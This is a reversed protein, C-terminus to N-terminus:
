REYLTETNLYNESLIKIMSLITQICLIKDIITDFPLFIQILRNGKYLYGNSCLFWVTSVFAKRKHSLYALTFVAEKWHCSFQLVFGPAFCTSPQRYEHFMHFFISSKQTKHLFLPFSSSSLRWVRRIWPGTRQSVPGHHKISFPNQLFLPATANLHLFRKRWGSATYLYQSRTFFRNFFFFAVM